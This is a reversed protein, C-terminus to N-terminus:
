NTKLWKLLAEGFNQSADPGNATIINGDIVMGQNKYAAGNSKLIKKFDGSSNDWITANKGKLVGSYALTAPSICIAAVLKNKKCAEQLIKHLIKNQFFIDAGPGGIIVIGEYEELKIQELTIEPKITRGGMSVATKTTTSATIVKVGGSILINKPTFYETDQFAAPAVVFVVNKQIEKATVPLFNSGIFILNILILFLIAKKKM